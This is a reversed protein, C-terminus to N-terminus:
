EKTEEQAAGDVPAEPPASVEDVEIDPVTDKPTVVVCTGLDDMVVNFSEFDIDKSAMWGIVLNTIGLNLSDREITLDRLQADKVKRAEITSAIRQKLPAPFHLVTSKGSELNKSQGVKGLGKKITVKSEHKRVPM